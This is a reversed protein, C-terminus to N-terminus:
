DKSGFPRELGDQVARVASPYAAATLSATKYQSLAAQRKSELDYIRGLYIHSWTALRLDRAVELTKQFYEEALDPKRLNSSAVAAGFLARESRPDVKELVDQFAAKAEAYKGQYILNDAQNLLVDKPSLAPAPHGVAAAAVPAFKVSALRQREERLDIELIIQKYFVSMTADQKEFDSLMEYFYPALILGQVALEAVTKEAKIAKDMRLELARILCETVLLPFDEKFDSALAPAQRAIGQLAGKQEIEAAYKVALPDLLFHLYQHRIENLKLQKSPTVVLYYNEGYIRAQVQEPAGLLSLNITYTRGLYTGGPFRLYADSVAISRRVVESYREIAQDYRPRVRGWLTTLDAQASFKRLLPVWGKIAKADPPLDSDPLTPKFDPPPGLLLALSIYPALGVDGDVAQQEAYFRRLESRVPIDQKELLARVEERTDDGVDVGLGADYGAINLAALVCFIQENADLVVNGPQQAWGPRSIALECALLLILSLIRFRFSFVRFQCRSVRAARISM